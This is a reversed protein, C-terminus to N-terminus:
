RIVFVNAWEADSRDPLDTRQRLVAGVDGANTALTRQDGLVSIGNLEAWTGYMRVVYWLEQDSYIALLGAYAPLHQRQVITGTFGEIGPRDTYKPYLKGEADEVAPVIYWRDYLM